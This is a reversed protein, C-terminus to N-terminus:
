GVYDSDFSGRCPDSCDVTNKYAEVKKARLACLVGKSAM